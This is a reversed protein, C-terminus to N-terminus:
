IIICRSPHSQSLIYVSIFWRLSLLVSRHRPERVQNETRCIAFATLAAATGDDTSVAGEAQLRCRPWQSQQPAVGVSVTAGRPVHRRGLIGGSRQRHVIVASTSRVDDNLERGAQLIFAFFALNFIFATPSVQKQFFTKFRNKLDWAKFSNKNTAREFENKHVNLFSFLIM